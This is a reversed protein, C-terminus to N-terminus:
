TRRGVEWGVLGGEEQKSYYGIDAFTMCFFSSCPSNACQDAVKKDILRDLSGISGPERSQKSFLGVRSVKVDSVFGFYRVGAIPIRHLTLAVPGFSPVFRLLPLIIIYFYNLM